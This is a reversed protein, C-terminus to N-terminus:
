LRSRDSGGAFLPGVVVVVVDKQNTYCHIGLLWRHKVRKVVVVVTTEVMVDANRRDYACCGGNGPLGNTCYAEEMPAHHESLM